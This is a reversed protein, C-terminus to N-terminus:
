KKEVELHYDNFVHIINDFDMKVYVEKTEKGNVKYCSGFSNIIGYKGNLSFVGDEYNGDIIKVRDKVKM